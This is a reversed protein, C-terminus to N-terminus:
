AGSLIYKKPASAHLTQSFVKEIIDYYYHSYYLSYCRSDLFALADLSMNEWPIKKVIFLFIFLYVHGWQDIRSVSICCFKNEM